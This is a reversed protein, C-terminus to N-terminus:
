VVTEETNLEGYREILRERKREKLVNQELLRGVNKKIIINQEEPM